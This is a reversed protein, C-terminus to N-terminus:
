ARTKINVHVHRSLYITTIVFIAALSAFVYILNQFNRMNENYQILHKQYSANLENYENLLQTYNFLFIDYRDLLEYYTLNLNYSEAQLVGYKLLLENYLYRTKSSIITVVQSSHNYTFYLYVHVENTIELTVPSIEEEDVFTVFTYNMLETPIMVRCFGATSYNGTINFSIIKNGTELGVEFRFDSITSNSIITVEHVKKLQGVEFYSFMGMLPYDDHNIDDIVHPNDGIGDGNVDQGAYDGWYNGEFNYNWINISATQVQM